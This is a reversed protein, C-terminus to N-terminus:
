LRRSQPQSVASEIMKPPFLSDQAAGTRTLIIGDPFKGNM